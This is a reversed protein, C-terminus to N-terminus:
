ITRTMCMPINSKEAVSILDDFNKKSIIPTNKALSLLEYFNIQKHTHYKRLPKGHEDRLKHGNEDYVHCYLKKIEDQKSRENNKNIEEVFWSHAIKKRKKGNKLVFYQSYFVIEQFEIEEFYEIM